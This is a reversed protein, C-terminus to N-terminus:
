SMRRAGWRPSLAWAIVEGVDKGILTSDIDVAGVLALGDRKVILRACACGIPGLGYQIVRTHQNM